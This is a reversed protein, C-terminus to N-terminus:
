AHAEVVVEEVEATVRQKGGLQERTDALTEVDFHPDVRQEFGRHQFIKRSHDVFRPLLLSRSAAVGDRGTGHAISGNRQAILLLAQPEYVFVHGLLTGTVIDGEGAM